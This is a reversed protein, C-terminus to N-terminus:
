WLQCLNLLTWPMKTFPLLGLSCAFLLPLPWCHLPHGLGAANPVGPLWPPLWASTQLGEVSKKFIFWSWKKLADKTWLLILCFNCLIQVHGMGGWATYGSKSPDRCAGEAPPPTYYNKRDTNLTPHVPSQSQSALGIPRYTAVEKRTAWSM